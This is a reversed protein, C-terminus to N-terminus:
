RLGRSLLIDLYNQLDFQLASSRTSAIPNLAQPPPPYSHRTRQGLDLDGGRDVRLLDGLRLTTYTKYVM